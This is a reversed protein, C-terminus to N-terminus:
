TQVKFIALGCYELTDTISKVKFQLRDGLGMRQKGKPIKIWNRFVPIPNTDAPGILGQHMELINKKGEYGNLDAMETVSPSTSNGVLKLFIATATSSTQLEGILWLELYVAKVVAGVPVEVPSTASPSQVCSVIDVFGAAGELVQSLTVQVIRKESNIIARM